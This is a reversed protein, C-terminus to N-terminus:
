YGTGRANMTACVALLFLFAAIGLILIGIVLAGALSLSSALVRGIGFAAPNSRTRVWAIGAGLRLLFLLGILIPVIINSDGTAIAGLVLWGVGVAGFVALIIMGVGMSATDRRVDRDATVTRRRLLATEPRPAGCSPCLRWSAELPRGCEPCATVPSVEAPGPPGAGPVTTIGVNPNPVEALCRPCTVSPGADAPVHLTCHCAPCETKLAM